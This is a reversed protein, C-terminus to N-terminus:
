RDKSYQQLSQKLNGNQLISLLTDVLKKAFIDDNIHADVEIVDIKKDLNKKLSEFLIKDTSPRYFIGGEADIQSIGRLPILVVAPATAGNIKDALQEGLIKNEEDNTRMLTVVPAWRYFERHRYKGPVTDAHGFNVM